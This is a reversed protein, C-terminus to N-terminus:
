SSAYTGEAVKALRRLAEVNRVHILADLVPNHIRRAPGRLPEEEMVVECGGDVARVTIDVEATGAPWARAELLIRGPPDVELCSTTDKLEFPGAGVSHHIRTGPAPWGDDVSRIRKAGVVWDAYRWGDALVAFVTDPPVPMRRRTIAM